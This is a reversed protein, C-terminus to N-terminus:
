EDDATIIGNKKLNLFHEFNLVWLTDKPFILDNRRIFDLQKCIVFKKFPNEHCHALSIDYRKGTIKHRFIGLLKM